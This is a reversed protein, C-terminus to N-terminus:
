GLLATAIYNAALSVICICLFIFAANRWGKFITINFAGLAAVSYISLVSTIGKVSILGEGEPLMFFYVYAVCVPLCMISVTIDGWTPASPQLNFIRAVFKTTSM